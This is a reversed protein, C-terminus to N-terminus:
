VERESLLGLYVDLLRAGESRLSFNRAGLAWRIAVGQVLSVLLVAIDAAAIDRRFQGTEQGALAEQELLGLFAALRGQFTARLASNDVNLERSFLLMPIAPMASIQDLQALILASLRGRPDEAGSLALAWANGLSLGVHEAVATWLASKTPFHRFLAAQTIGIETAVAGTTVRDPGIREALTLVVSIIESRRLEAPKRM